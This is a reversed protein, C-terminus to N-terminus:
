VHLKFKDIYKNLWVTVTKEKLIKLEGFCIQKFLRLWLLVVMVQLIVSM